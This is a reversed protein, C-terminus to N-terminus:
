WCATASPSTTPMGRHAARAGSPSSRVPLEILALLLALTLLTPVSFDLFILAVWGIQAM